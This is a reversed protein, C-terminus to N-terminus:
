QRSAQRGRTLTVRVRGGEGAGGAKGSGVAARLGPACDACRAFQGAVMDHGNSGAAALFQGVRVEISSTKTAIVILTSKCLARKGVSSCRFGEPDVARDLKVM